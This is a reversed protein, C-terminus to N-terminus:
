YENYNSVNKLLNLLTNKKLNLNLIADTYIKTGNNFLLKVIEDSCYYLIKNDLTSIKAGNNL